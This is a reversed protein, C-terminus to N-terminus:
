RYCDPCFWEEDDGLADQEPVPVECVQCPHSVHEIVALQLANHVNSTLTLWDDEMQANIEGNFKWQEVDAPSWTPLGMANWKRDMTEVFADFDLTFASEGSIGASTIYDCLEQVVGDFNNQIRASAEVIRQQTTM